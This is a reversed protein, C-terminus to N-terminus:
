RGQRYSWPVRLSAYYSLLSCLLSFKSYSTTDTYKQIFTTHSTKLYKYVRIVSVMYNKLPIQHSTLNANSIIKRALSFLLLSRLDVLFLLQQRLPLYRSFINRKRQYTLLLTLYNTFVKYARFFYEKEL